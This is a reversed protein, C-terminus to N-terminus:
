LAVFSDLVAYPQKQQAQLEEIAYQAQGMALMRAADLCHNDGGSYVRRGYQNQVLTVSWTSGQFQKLMETDWPLQLRKSDVLTRLCDSAFELVNRKIGAEKVTEDFKAYWELEVSDDFDVLVKESFGYGKICDLVHKMNPDAEAREQIDQYLPLGLGTKDMAFAKPRYFNITAIIAAVQESHGIREMHIRTLIKLKTDTDKPKERYEVAILIESPDVTYGVDMGAWFTAGPHRDRYALHNHPFDLLDEIRQGMSRISESKARVKFYEEANYESAENSDVCAMLRYLVFLPNTADGHLGLVNRRYDPDDRSGYQKIKEEREEDTWTPRNMAPFRHVKWPNDHSEQTRQYFDDRLGRTVGHARWVAGEHGRKLTETLEVWGPHPFDQAEDLELWIPHIGKVGKGDRQPIRAMIRAGNVFNIQFPRHTVAARGRPSIERYFRTAQVQHEILGTIPELHVSEPGTIVMEQGPFLNPFACARLKIGLTKGVSRACQDIQLPAKTRYWALQFPWVRFCGDESDPDFWLFEASDVGSEDQLISWLCAEDEGLEELVRPIEAL